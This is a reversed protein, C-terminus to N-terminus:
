AWRQLAFSTFELNISRRQMVFAIVSAYDSFLKYLYTYLDSSLNASLYNGAHLRKELHPDRKLKRSLSRSCTQFLSRAAFNRRSQRGRTIGTIAVIKRAACYLRSLTDACHPEDAHLSKRHSLLYRDRHM